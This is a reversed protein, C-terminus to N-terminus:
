FRLPWLVSIWTKCSGGRKGPHRRSDPQFQRMKRGVLPIMVAHWSRILYPFTLPDVERSGFDRSAACLSIVLVGLPIVSARASPICSGREPCIDTQTLHKRRYRRSIRPSHGLACVWRGVAMSWLRDDWIPVRRLASPLYTTIFHGGLSDQICGHSVSQIPGDRGLPLTNARHHGWPMQPTRSAATAMHSEPTSSLASATATAPRRMSTVASHFSVPM